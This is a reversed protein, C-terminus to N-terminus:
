SGAAILRIALTSRVVCWVGAVSACWIAFWGVDPVFLIFASLTTEFAMPLVLLLGVALAGNTLIPLVVYCCISKWTRPRTGEHRSWRRLLCVTYAIGAVQLLAILALCILPGLYRMKHSPPQPQKSLLIRTVNWALERIAGGYIPSDANVLVAVALHADPVIVVDAHFHPLIGGHSIIERGEWDGAYWGIAYNNGPSIEVVPEHLRAMGHESIVRADNYRGGNLHAVLYHAMDEASAMLYGGALHSGPFPLDSAVVPHGFWYRHGAALGHLQAQDKAAFSNHMELPEFVHKHVYDGYSEGSVQQIVAALVAYNANSYQFISGPQGILECRALARVREDIAASSTNHTALDRRGEATSIGSTHTLLHMVTIRKSAEADAVRFWPLYVQAPMHFEVAGAEHLQMVALATFSKTISGIMFPTQPTVSRSDLGATGFGRVHVANAGQVVALAVGPIRARLMENEIYRGAQAVKTELDAGTACQSEVLLVFLAVYLSNVPRTLMRKRRSKSCWLKGAGPTSNTM